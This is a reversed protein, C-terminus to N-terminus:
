ADTRVKGMREHLGGKSQNSLWDTPISEIAWPIRHKEAWKIYKKNHSYFVIRLDMAPHMKKVAVMKSKDEQRLYGKCEIYITDGNASKICFDPIYHRALIYPIHEGEYKFSVKAKKLQTFIKQEFKNKTKKM